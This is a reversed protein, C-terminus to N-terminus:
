NPNKSLKALLYFSFSILTAIFFATILVFLTTTTFIASLIGMYIIGIMSCSFLLHSNTLAAHTPYLNVIVTHINAYLFGMGIYLGYIFAILIYFNLLGTNYFIIMGVMSLIQISFGLIILKRLKFYRLLIINVLISTMYIFGELISVTGFIVPGKEYTHSLIFPLYTYFINIYTILTSGAIVLLVYKACKLCNIHPSIAAFFNFKEAKIESNTEKYIFIYCLVLSLTFAFMFIYNAKWGYYQQILGGIAPMLLLGLGFIIEYFSYFCALTKEKKALDKLIAASTIFNVGLGAGQIARLVYLQEINKAFITLLCSFSFVLMSIIYIRKRGFHDSIVGYILPITATFFTFIYNATQMAGMSVGFYETMAPLSAAPYLTGMPEALITYIILGFYIYLSDRKMIFAREV